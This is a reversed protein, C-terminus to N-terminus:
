SITLSWIERPNSEVINESNLRESLIPYRGHAHRNNDMIILDGEEMAYYNHADLQRVSEVFYKLESYYSEANELSDSFTCFKELLDQKLRVGYDFESKADSLTYILPSNLTDEKVNDASFKINTNLLRKLCRDYKEPSLSHLMKFFSEWRVIKSEGRNGQHTDVWGSNVMLMAFYSPRPNLWSRANHPKLDDSIYRVSAAENTSTKKVKVRNIVPDPADDNLTSKSSYNILPTGLQEALSVYASSALPFYKIYAIGSDRLSEKTREILLHNTEYSICNFEQKAAIIM